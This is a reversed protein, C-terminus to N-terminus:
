GCVVLVESELAAAVAVSFLDDVEHRSPPDSWASAVMDRDGSRRDIVYCGSSADMGVLRLEADLQDLLPRLVQGTEGGIFGCLIPHSDLEAAMRAVWVGQGAAHMHVDDDDTGRREITVGLLPHSSFVAVSPPSM